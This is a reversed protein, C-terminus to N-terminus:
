LVLRQTPRMSSCAQGQRSHHQLPTYTSGPKAQLTSEASLDDNGQQKSCSASSAAQCSLFKLLTNFSALALFINMAMANLAARSHLLRGLFLGTPTDFPALLAMCCALAPPWIHQHRMELFADLSHLQVRTAGQAFQVQGRWAQVCVEVSVADQVMQLHHGPWRSLAEFLIIQLGQHMSQCGWSLSASRLMGWEARKLRGSM